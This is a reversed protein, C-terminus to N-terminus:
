PPIEVPPQQYPYQPQRTGPPTAAELPYRQRFSSGNAQPRVLGSSPQSM